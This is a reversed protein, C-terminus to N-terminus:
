SQRSYISIERTKRGGIARQSYGNNENEKELTVTWCSPEHHMDLEVRVVM